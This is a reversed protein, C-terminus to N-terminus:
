PALGNKAAFPDWTPERHWDYEVRDALTTAVDEGHLHAILALAMDMGAAVGASTWRNGDEVWRAEPVWEVNQSQSRAWEFARKNSTARCGDLLGAAALVASGTCVSAVYRASAAWQSLWALFKPAQVLRRTGIGGPVLVVDPPRAEGYSRDAVIQPGIASKVPGPGPGVLDISFRDTLLGFMELPGCVDLLEFGDFLVVSLQSPEGTSGV